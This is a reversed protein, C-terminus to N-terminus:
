QDGGYMAPYAWAEDAGLRGGTLRQLEMLRELQAARIDIIRGELEIEQRLALLFESASREGLEMGILVRESLDTALPLLERVHRELRERDTEWGAMLEEIEGRVDDRRQNRDLEIARRSAQWRSAERDYQDGFIPLRISVGVQLMQDRPGDMEWMPPMNKYGAMLTPWPWRRDDVLDIQADAVAAEAGLRALDPEGRHAMVMLEEEPPVEVLWEELIDASFDMAAVRSTEVGMRAAMKARRQRRDSRLKARTDTATERALELQYFDGHDGDGLPAVAEVVGLADDILGIEDELLELRAEIRALAVVDLRLERLVGATMVEQQHRAVGARARAPRGEADRTGWMPVEQMVKIMHGTTLHPSWPASVDAMYEVMPEPWRTEHYEAERTSEDIRADFARISQNEDIALRDMEEVESAADGSSAEVVMPVMLVAMSGIVACFGGRRLSDTKSM